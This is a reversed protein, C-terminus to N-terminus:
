ASDCKLCAWKILNSQNFCTVKIRNSLIKLLKLINKKDQFTHNLDNKYIALFNVLNNTIDMFNKQYFM